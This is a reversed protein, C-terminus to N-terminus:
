KKSPSFFLCVASLVMLITGAVIYYVPFFTFYSYFLLFFGSFFLSACLKRNFRAKIRKLIGAKKIKGLAYKEPLLGKEKLLIYVQETTMIKVSFDEALSLASPDAECCLIVKQRDCKKRIVQAVDDASLPSMKFNFFYRNEGDLLANGAMYAGDFARKFLDNLYKEGNISLHLSLSKKESEDLSLLLRKKRKVVLFFAAISASAAAIGASILAATLASKVYFRIATFAIIFACLTYFLVDSILALNIKKMRFKNVFKVSYILM